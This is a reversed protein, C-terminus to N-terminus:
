VCVRYYYEKISTPCDRILKCVQKPRMFVSMALPDFRSIEPIQSLDKIGMGKKLEGLEDEELIIIEPNLVHKRVNFQLRKISFVIIHIGENDNKYRLTKVITDNPDDNSIIVLTDKKGLTNSSEFIDEIINNLSNRLTTGLYYNIYIKKENTQDKNKTLLLDLQTNKFMTEIDLISFGEYQSVDYNEM